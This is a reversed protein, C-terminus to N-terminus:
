EGTFYDRNELATLGTALVKTIKLVSNESIDKGANRYTKYLEIENPKLNEYDISFVTKVDELYNKAVQGIALSRGQKSNKPSRINGEVKLVSYDEQAITIEGCFHTAYFDGSGTLTPKEQKFSIVWCKKGKVEPESELKLQFGALIGPSLVSSASRVWDFGLMEDLNTKGTSFRYDSEWAKKKLKYNVSRYADTKSPAAYGTKDYIIVEAIQKVLNTDITVANTYEAILNYPGSIFNYPINESAMRLIRVLVMSQRAVDIKDIDYTQPEIKVINFEKQFLEKVPFTKSVFGVASFYINKSVMDEPIKLEFDGNSNSATGYLTGELGINTYSVPENTAENVVKGKITEAVKSSSQAMSFFSLFIAVAFISITKM